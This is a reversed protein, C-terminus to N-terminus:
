GAAPIDTRTFDDGKFLRMAANAKACAYAYCDGM